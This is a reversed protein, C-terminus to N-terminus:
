VEVYESLPKIQEAYVAWNTESKYAEVLTDPVYITGTFTYGNFTNAGLSCVKENQRIVVTQLNKCSQFTYGGLTIISDFIVTKLNTCSIFCQSPTVTLKPLYVYELSACSHFHPTTQGKKYLTVLNPVNLEKLNNCFAFCGDRATTVNPFSLKEQKCGMFAYEDLETFKENSYEKMAGTIFDELEDTFEGIVTGDYKPIGITIAIDDKVRKNKTNLTLGDITPVKIEVAM